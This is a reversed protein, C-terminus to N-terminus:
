KAFRNQRRPLRRRVADRILSPSMHIVESLGINARRAKDLFNRPHILSLPVGQDFGCGNPPKISAIAEATAFLLTNQAYYWQVRDNTWVLPRIWDLVRYGRAAFLAAWYSPWQENLHNTGGQMPAAASFLITSGLSVLSQVFTNASTEPLHEAVELSVVLDFQRDLSLPQSLDHAVFETPPLPRYETVWEGDIGLVETVGHEKFVSLWGGIGCGVDVVSRPKVIELLLPVVERASATSERRQEEFFADSYPVAM